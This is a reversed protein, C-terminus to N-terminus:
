QLSVFYSAVHQFAQEMAQTLGCEKALTEFRAKAELPATRHEAEVQLAKSRDRETAALHTTEAYEKRDVKFRYHWKGGRNRLSIPRVATDWQGSFALM